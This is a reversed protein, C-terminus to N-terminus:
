AEIEMKEDQIQRYCDYCLGDDYHFKNVTKGCICLVLPYDEEQQGFSIGETFRGITSSQVEQSESGNQIQNKTKM